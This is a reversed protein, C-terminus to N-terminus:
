PYALGYNHDVAIYYTSIATQAQRFEHGAFGQDHWGVLGAAVHLALAVAFAIIWGRSLRVTPVSDPPVPSPPQM